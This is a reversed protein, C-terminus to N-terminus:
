IYFDYSIWGINALAWLWQGTINKKIVFVNGALSMAVLIWTLSEISPMFEEQNFLHSKTGFLRM